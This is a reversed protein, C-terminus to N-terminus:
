KCLGFAKVLNSSTQAETQAQEFLSLYVSLMSFALTGFSVAVSTSVM